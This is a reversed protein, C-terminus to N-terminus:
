KYNNEILKIAWKLIEKNEAIIFEQQISKIFKRSIPALHKKLKQKESTKM